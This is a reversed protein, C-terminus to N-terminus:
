ETSAKTPVQARHFLAIISAGLGTFVLGAFLMWGVIPALLTLGMALIGIAQSGLLSVPKPTIQQWVREGSVGTATLLGAILLIPLAVLASLAGILQIPALEVNALLAVAFFFAFNVLGLLFSRGSRRRMVDRAREVYNPALATLLILLAPLGATPACLLMIVGIIDNTGGNEM